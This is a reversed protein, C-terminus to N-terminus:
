PKTRIILDSTIRAGETVTSQETLELGAAKAAARLQDMDSYNAYGIASRIAGDDGFVLTDLTVGPATQVVAFYRVSLDSFGRRGQTAALRSLAYTAPDEYRVAQPVVSVALRSAEAEMRRATIQDHAMQALLVVLPSIVAVATLLALRKLNASGPARRPAFQGQLLDIAPSRAGAVLWPDLEAAPIYRHPRADVLLAALEPEANFARGAERLGLREGFPAVILEDAEGLPLLLYDPIAAQPVLGHVRALDLWARLKDRSTWVVLTRGAEDVGGVAIHLDDGGLAVEDEIRFAAASRAQAPSGVPLDMWRAVADAGPLVLVADVPPDLRQDAALRRRSTAPGDAEILELLGGPEPPLIVLRLLTM